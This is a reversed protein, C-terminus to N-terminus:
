DPFLVQILGRHLEDLQDKVALLPAEEENTPILLSNLRRLSKRLSIELRKYGRQHNALDPNNTELTVQCAQVKDRYESLRVAAETLRGRNIERAVADLTRNGHNTVGDVCATADVERARGRLKQAPSEPFAAQSLIVIALLALVSRSM